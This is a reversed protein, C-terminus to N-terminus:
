SRGGDRGLDRVRSDMELRWLWITLESRGTRLSYAQPRVTHRRLSRTYAPPNM